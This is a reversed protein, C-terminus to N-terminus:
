IGRTTGGCSCVNTSECIVPGRNRAREGAAFSSCSPFDFLFLITFRHTHTHTHIRASWSNCGAPSPLSSARLILPVVNRPFNARALASSIIEDATLLVIGSVRFNGRSISTYRIYRWIRDGRANGSAQYAIPDSAHDIRAHSLKLAILSVRRPSEASAPIKRIPFRSAAIVSTEGRVALLLM